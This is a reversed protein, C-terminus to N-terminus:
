LVSEFAIKVSVEEISDGVLARKMVEIEFPNIRLYGIKETGDLLVLKIKEAAFYNYFNYFEISKLRTLNFNLEYSRINTLKRIHTVVVSSDMSKKLQINSELRQVDGWEPSPLFIVIKYDPHPAFIKIM